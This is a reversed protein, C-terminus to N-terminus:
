EKAEDGAASGDAKNLQASAAAEAAANVDTNGGRRKPAEPAAQPLQQGALQVGGPAQSALAQGGGPTFPMVEAPAPPLSGVLQAYAEAGEATVPRGAEDIEISSLPPKVAKIKGDKPDKFEGLDESTVVSGAALLTGGIFAVEALLFRRYKIAM